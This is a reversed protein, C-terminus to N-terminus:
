RPPALALRVETTEDGYTIKLAGDATGHPIVFLMDGEQASEARVIKNLNSKPAIPAGDLILRFSQDYFNADSTNHNMMRLRIQLTDKETNRRSVEAKLLTFTARGLRYDRLAPLEVAYTTAAASAFPPQSAVPSPNQAPAAPDAAPTTPAPPSPTMTAPSTGPGFWGTQNIAVILGALATIVAALSTIVGPLTHWWGKSKEGDSM